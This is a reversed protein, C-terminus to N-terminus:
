NNRYSKFLYYIKQIINKIKSLFLFIFSFKELNKLTEISIKNVKYNKNNREFIILIDGFDNKIYKANLQFINAYFKLIEVTLLLTCNTDNKSIMSKYKSLNKVQDMIVLHGNSSLLDNFNSFDKYINSSLNLTKRCFILDYKKSNQNNLLDTESKFTEFYNSLNETFNKNIDYGNVTFGLEKGAFMFAGYGCGYDLIKTPNKKIVGLIKKIISRNESIQEKYYDSEIVKKLDNNFKLMLLVRKKLEKINKKYLLSYNKCFLLEEYKNKFVLIDSSKCEPSHSNQIIM